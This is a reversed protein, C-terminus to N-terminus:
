LVGMAREIEARAEPTLGGSENLRAMADRAASLRREAAEFKERALALSEGARSEAAAKIHLEAKRNLAEGLALALRLWKHSGDHDGRLETEMARQEYARILDPSIEGIAGMERGIRSKETVALEIRHESEQEAMRERFRYYASRSPIEVGFEAAAWDACEIWSKAAAHRDYVQWRASEPIAACWADKREDTM